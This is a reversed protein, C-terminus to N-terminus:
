ILTLAETIGALIAERKTKFDYGQAKRENLIWHSDDEELEHNYKPDYQDVFWMYCKGQYVGGRYTYRMADVEINHVDSLWDIVQQWLPAYVWTSTSNTSGNEWIVLKKYLPDFYGLCPEDFGKEKLKLAIEHPVFQEKM